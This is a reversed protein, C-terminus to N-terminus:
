QIFYIYKITKGNLHSIKLNFRHLRSWQKRSTFKVKTPYKSVFVESKTSNQGYSYSLKLNGISNVNRKNVLFMHYFYHKIRM